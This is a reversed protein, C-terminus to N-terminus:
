DTIQLRGNRTLKMNLIKMDGTKMGHKVEAPYLEFETGAQNIFLYFEIKNRKNRIVGTCRCTVM